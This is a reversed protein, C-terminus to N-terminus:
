RSPRAARRGRAAPPTTVAVATYGQEIYRDIDTGKFRLMRSNAMRVHPILKRQVQSYLWDKEVKLLACVEDPTLLQEAM